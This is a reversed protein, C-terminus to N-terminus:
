LKHIIMRHYELHSWCGRHSYFGSSSSSLFGLAGLLFHISLQLVNLDLIGLAAHQIPFCLIIVVIEQVSAPLPDNVGRNLYLKVRSAKQNGSTVLYM